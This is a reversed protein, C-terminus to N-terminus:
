EPLAADPQLARRYRDWDEGLIRPVESHALEQTVSQVRKVLEAHEETLRQIEDAPLEALKVQYAELQDCVADLIDKLSEFAEPDVVLAGPPPKLFTERSQVQQMSKALGEACQWYSLFDNDEPLAIPNSSSNSRWYGMACAFMIAFIAVLGWGKKRNALFGHFSLNELM